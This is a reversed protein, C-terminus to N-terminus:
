QVNSKDDEVPHDTATPAVTWKVANTVATMADAISSSVPKTAQAGDQGVDEHSAATSQAGEDTTPTSNKGVLAEKVSSATQSVVATISQLLTNPPPQQQESNAQIKHSPDKQQLKDTAVATGQRFADQVTAIGQQLAGKGQQVHGEVENSQQEAEQRAAGRLDHVGESVQKNALGLQQAVQSGTNQATQYAEGLQKRASNYQEQGAPSLEQKAEEHRKHAALQAKDLSEKAEGAVSGLKGQAAVKLQGLKEELPQQVPEPAKQNSSQQQVDSGSHVNNSAM